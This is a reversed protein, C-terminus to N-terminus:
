SLKKIASFANGIALMETSVLDRGFDTRDEVEHCAIEKDYVKGPIAINFDKQISIRAVTLTQKERRSLKRLAKKFATVNPFKKLAEAMTLMRDGDPIAPLLKQRDLRARIAEPTEAMDEAM